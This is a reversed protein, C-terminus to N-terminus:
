VIQDFKVKIVVKRIITKKGSLCGPRHIDSSFFIAFSGEKFDLMSEKVPKQYFIMDKGPRLDESIVSTKVM